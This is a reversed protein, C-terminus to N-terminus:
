KSEAAPKSMVVFWKGSADAALSVYYGDARANDLRQKLSKDTGIFWRQTLPAAKSFVVLWRKGDRAVSTIHRGENWKNRISEKVKEWDSYCIYSQRGLRKDKTYVAVWLSGQHAVATVKFKQKWRQKIEDRLASVRTHATVAQERRKSRKAFVAAWQSDNNSLHRVEWGSTRYREILGSLADFSDAAEIRQLEHASQRAFLTYWRGERGAISMVRFGDAWREEVREQLDDFRDTVLLQDHRPSQKSSAPREGLIATVTGLRVVDLQVRDGRKFNELASRLDARNGVARGAIKTIVDNARLGAQEAPSNPEVYGVLVGTHKEVNLEDALVQDIAHTFVGLYATAEGEEHPPTTSRTARFGIRSGKPTFESVRVALVDGQRVTGSRSEYEQLGDGNLDHLEVRYDGTGTATLRVKIDDIKMGAPIPVALRQPAAQGGNQKDRETSFLGEPLYLSGPIENILGPRDDGFFWQKLDGKPKSTMGFRRGDPLEVLAAVPSHVTIYVQNGNRVIVRGDELYTANDDCIWVGSKTLNGGVPLYSDEGINFRSTVGAKDADFPAVGRYIVCRDGWNKIYWKQADRFPKPNASKYDFLGWYNWRGDYWVDNSADQWDSIVIGVFTVANVDRVPFGLSRLLSGFLFAHEQCVYTSGTKPDTEKRAPLPTDFGYTRRWLDKANDRPAWMDAPAGKPMLAHIVFNAVNEVVQEPDDPFEPDASSGEITKWSSGYRAARIALARITWDGVYSERPDGNMYYDLPRANKTPAGVVPRFDPFALKAIKSGKERISKTEELLLERKGNKGRKGYVEVRVAKKLPVSLEQKPKVAGAKARVLNLHMWSKRDLKWQDQYSAATQRTGIGASRLPFTVTRETKPRLPLRPQEEATVKGDNKPFYLVPEQADGFQGVITCRVTCDEITESDNNIVTVSLRALDAITFQRDNDRLTVRVELPPGLYKRLKEFAMLAFRKSEKTTFARQDFSEGVFAPNRHTVRAKIWYRDAIIHSEANVKIKDNFFSTLDTFAFDGAKFKTVKNQKRPALFDHQKKAEELASKRSDYVNVTLTVIYDFDSKRKKSYSGPGLWLPKSKKRRVTVSRISFVAPGARLPATAQDSEKVEGQIEKKPIAAQVFQRLDFPVKNSGAGTTPMPAWLLWCLLSVATVLILKGHLCRRPNTM